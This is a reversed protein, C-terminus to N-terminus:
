RRLARWARQVLGSAFTDDDGRRRLYHDQELREIFSVLQDRERVPSGESHLLQLVADVGLPEPAHAYIDLLGAIAPADEGYYNRLRDRYHRLDWPDHPDTIASDLLLPIRDANVPEGLRAAAAVLHQIYYPGCEAATAIAAGVQPRDSVEVRAGLLLCEALYTAHDHRIPGVTVKRIDNVSSLAEGSVHHFGISGSLVTALRGAHDQRLRRLLHLFGDGGGVKERELNRALVTVEDIFLVLPGVRTRSVARQLLDDLAAEARAREFRVPGTGFAIRWREVEQRLTTDLRGLEGALASIFEAYSQREASVSIVTLGSDRATRAVLRSLSTKGHRRDGVLAAGGDPLSTLIEQQERIRGVVNEPPVVGGVVLSMPRIPWSM